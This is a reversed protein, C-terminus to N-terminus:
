IWHSKLLITPEKKLAEVATEVNGHGSIMIIPVEPCIDMLKEIVEIGDMQPMKIDCLIVDYKTAKALEIGEFGDSALDVSHEEYEIIEKLTDRIPKEDDIVLIKGNENQKNL